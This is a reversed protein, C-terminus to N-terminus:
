HREHARAHQKAALDAVVETEYFPQIEGCSCVFTYGKERKIVPGVAAMQM